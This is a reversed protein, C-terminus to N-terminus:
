EGGGRCTLAHERYRPHGDHLFKEFSCARPDPTGDLNRYLSIVWPRKGKTAPAADLTKRTGNPTFLILVPAGCIPCPTPDIM